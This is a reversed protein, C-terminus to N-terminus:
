RTDEVVEIGNVCAMGEVPVFSLVIKGQATPRIGKFTRMLPRGEGGAEKFIDFNRLLAVGNCYVDFVRSGLGGVGTNRHGYHGECFRLTVQYRGEPVPLAYSFHGWRESDYLAIDPSTSNSVQAPNTTRVLANGGLFYSDALWSQGGSDQWSGTWGARIRLATVKGASVPLVEIGSLIATTRFASFNLHLFGDGAPSIDRFVREDAVNPGDADAVVDFFDLIVKGNASVRFIRQGEGSSEASIFDALGTEAFHLHLEYTGPKLPIDYRFDGFRVHRYIDPDLTRVVRESPRVMVSGGSFHRDPGWKRGSRDVYTSTSGVVMRLSGNGPLVGQATGSIAAATSKANVAIPRTTYSRWLLAGAALVLVVASCAMMPRSVWRRPEQDAAAGVALEPPPVAEAAAAGTGTVPAEHAPAGWKFEASYSGPPLEIRVAHYSGNEALYHQALKKRVENATVRVITHQGTDFNHPLQFLEVGLSREKLTGNPGRITHEVVYGLFERCRKSSRFTASELLRTLETRVM